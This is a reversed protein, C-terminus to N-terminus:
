VPGGDTIVWNNPPNLLTQRAAAAASSYQSYGGTFVVGTQLTPLSAWGILLSDYNATSLTVFLFMSYMNTVSSVDWSGLDQDFADAVGFMYAMGTVSSVDWSGIDQNFTDANGFMYSMITVSSVDWNGINQNFADADFFMEYMDTVSSVDWSGINQNFITAGRFMESMDTVSSVDWSGINQNFTIAGYFMDSMYTVSSVDWSGINQNFITAGRFIGDMDIVSSVDWNGIDQNFATAGNFMDNMDTVSSIDWSGIDQNFSNANRFMYSMRTVSSVDWSGIDQNFADANGFMEYMSTVSSVDWSGINQNFDSADSFMEYMSTVSSADWSGIDQNFSNANRFMYSMDTVSSVDWSGIDQNFTIANYFMFTMNTVSSVDWDNMNDIKDTTYCDRFASALTTTGTLNLSDSATIKLNTCGYFYDGSNGLRLDGWQKIELLKNLDGGHNFRWGIIIGTIKITYVGGLAYTHTVEAQNWTIISNNTGDGWDVMFDYIGIPELPLGIQNIQTVGPNRTDWVSLFSNTDITFSVSTSGINGESDNAWASITNLGENFIIEQSSIYTVNNGDWNYWITDIGSEDTATINLWQVADDYITNNTPSTIEVTPATTDIIIEGSPADNSFWLILPLSIGVSVILISIILLALNKKKM